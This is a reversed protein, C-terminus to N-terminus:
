HSQMYYIKYEDDAKHLYWTVDCRDLYDEKGSKTLYHDFKVRCSFVGNGYDFFESAEANEVRYGDHEWVFIGPNKRVDDYLVTDPDFYKKVYAFDSDNQMYIAYKTAAEIVYDSFQEKLEESYEYKCSYLNKEEDFELQVENGKDDLVKIKPTKYLGTMSCVKYTFLFAGEPVAEREDEKIGSATVYEDSIEVGDAYAKYREPFLVNISDMPKEYFLVIKDLEYIPQDYKNKEEKEKVFFRAVLAGDAKVNIVKQDTGALYGYSMTKGRLKAAYKEVADEYTDPAHYEPKEEALAILTEVDPEAFYEDFIRQIQNKPKYLEYTEEFDALWERIPKQIALVAILGATIIVCLAIYFLLSTWRFKFAREKKM